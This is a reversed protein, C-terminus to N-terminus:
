RRQKTRPIPINYPFSPLSPNTTSQPTTTAIDINQNSAIKTHCTVQYKIDRSQFKRKRKEVRNKPFDCSTIALTDLKVCLQTLHNSNEIITNKSSCAKFGEFYLTQRKSPDARIGTHRQGSVSNTPRLRLFASFQQRSCIVTSTRCPFDLLTFLNDKLASRKSGDAQNAEMPGSTVPTHQCSLSFGSLCHAGRL